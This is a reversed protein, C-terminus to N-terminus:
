RIIPASPAASRCRKRSPTHAIVGSADWSGAASGSEDADAVAVADPVRKAAPKVSQTGAATPAQGVAGADAGPRARVMATAMRGPVNAIALRALTPTSEPVALATATPATVLIGSVGPTAPGMVPPMVPDTVRHTVPTSTIDSCGAAASSRVDRRRSCPSGWCAQWDIGCVASCPIGGVKENTTGGLPLQTM